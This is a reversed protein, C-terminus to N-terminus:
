CWFLGVKFCTGRKEFMAGQTMLSNMILLTLSDDGFRSFMQQVNLLPIRCWDQVVYGHVSTCSTNDMSIVEDYILCMFIENQVVVKITKKV